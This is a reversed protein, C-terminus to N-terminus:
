CAPLGLIITRFFDFTTFNCGFNAAAVAVPDLIDDGGPKIGNEVWNVLDDFAQTEELRTFRCHFVDRIARSVLLDANGQAAVRRAYIQEM